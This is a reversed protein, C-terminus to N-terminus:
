VGEQEQADRAGPARSFAPSLTSRPRSKQLEIQRGINFLVGVAILAALLNTGGYSIFPLALGKTPLCKTVVGINLVVQIFILCTMGYAILRGLRDKARLSILIGCVFFVSFLVVMSLSFILGWEEAGIAFIFDTHAEPLYRLKQYSSNFGVGTLGGNRIAVLAMDAQHAAALEKDSMVVAGGTAVAQGFMGKLWSFIRNMRNANSCIKAAVVGGGMMCFLAVYVFKMDSILYLLLATVGMILTAGYDPEFMVPLMMTGAILAAPVAGRWFKAIKWGSRDIFVALSIVLFLKAFESAQLRVPGLAVWRRSGNVEPFFFVAVLLALMLVYVAVTFKPYKKWNHYDFRAALFAVPLSVGFWILQRIIFYDPNNHLRIGNENGASALAFFGWTLLSLVSIVLFSLTCPM